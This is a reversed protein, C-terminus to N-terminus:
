KRLMELYVELKELMVDMPAYNEITLINELINTSFGNIMVVDKDFKTAPVGNCRTSVNWFIIKPLVYGGEIFAQKWGKFNTGTRSYVGQDFEMDSIILLHSPLEKQELNNDKSTKLILEFVKDIGTNAVISPINNVKDKITKGKVECLYPRDSFTIFHNKFIGKNREATYLALGLSTAYLIGGSCMMSGSTDAVVLVNTDCDKLVDKQNNWMLDYLDYDKNSDFLIKKIIEYSFLGNTNIKSEGTKVQNKYELYEDPMRKMFADTYKLMAKTPVESFVINEYKKETLNKEIINIKGRLKSLTNRYEVESMELGNMIKKALLSNVNHTRHSPLWKVLLSPCESKLDSELQKKILSIVMDNIPTDIGVLIYDYRGIESIFPLVILARSTHNICLDKFITKFIKREGKGSRIDLIYLLNALALDEDEDLADNFLRIMEDLSNYRSLMTFVDLNNNYTFAYYESGKTNTITTNKKLEDLLCM